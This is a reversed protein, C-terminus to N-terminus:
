NVTDLNVSCTSSCYEKLLSFTISHSIIHSNNHNFVKVLMFTQLQFSEVLFGLM